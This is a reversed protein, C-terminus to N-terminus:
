FKGLKRDCPAEFINLTLRVSYSELSSSPQPFYKKNEESYKFRINGLIYFFVLSSISDSTRGLKNTKCRVNKSRRKKKNNNNNNIIISLLLLSYIIIIIINNYKKNCVV